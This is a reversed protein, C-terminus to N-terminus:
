ESVYTEANVGEVRYFGLAKLMPKDDFRYLYVQGEAGAQHQYRHWAPVCFTDGQKWKLVSNGVTTSGSGEIVHYVASSTERIEPSTTCPLLREASAGIVRGIEAGNRKLYPRSVWSDTAADLQLQMKDWPYVIDSEAFDEAPYRPSSYHEVFHVPFHIFNPLDLGDLWIVPQDDGGEENAGKKGHDHWNWTPTVIVDRPRMPVRKGHVATFGGTGEIIFRCAFATHRHAPATENPQVLQLGAYLTDTTYPAERAPNGLMLVRREAQKETILQGAKALYPRIEDYNWVHPITQPNPAPPNLRQMQAWLPSTNTARLAAVLEDPSQIFGAATAANHQPTKSASSSASPM